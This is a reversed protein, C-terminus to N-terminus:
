GTTIPVASPMIRAFVSREKKRRRRDFGAAAGLPQPAERYEGSHNRGHCSEAIHSPPSTDGGGRNRADEVM